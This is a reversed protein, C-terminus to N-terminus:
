YQQPIVLSGLKDLTSRFPGKEEKQNYPFAVARFTTTFPAFAQIDAEGVHLALRLPRTRPVMM